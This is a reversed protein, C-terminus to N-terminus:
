WEILIIRFFLAIFINDNRFPNYYRSLKVMVNVDFPLCLNTDRSWTEGMVERKSNMVEECFSTTERWKKDM